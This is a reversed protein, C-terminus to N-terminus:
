SLHEGPPHPQNFVPQGYVPLPAPPNYPQNFVPQNYPQPKGYPLPVQGLQAESHEFSPDNANSGYM